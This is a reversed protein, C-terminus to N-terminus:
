VEEKEEAVTLPVGRLHDILDSLIRLAVMLSSIPLVCYIYILPLRMGASLAHRANMSQLLKVGEVALFLNFALWIILVLSDITRHALKSKFLSYILDVKIHQRQNYAASTGLWIQWIFIYRSLEESWSLSINFLARMVIQAFVLLVNVALSFVLLKEEWDSYTKLFRKM